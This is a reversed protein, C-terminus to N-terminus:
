PCMVELASLASPSMKNYGGGDSEARNTTVFYTRGLKHLGFDVCGIHVKDNHTDVNKCSMNWGQNLLQKCALKDQAKHDPSPVVLFVTALSAAFIALFLYFGDEFSLFLLLFAAIYFGITWWTM